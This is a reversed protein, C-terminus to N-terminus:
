LRQEGVYISLSIKITMWVLTENEKKGYKVLLCTLVKLVM